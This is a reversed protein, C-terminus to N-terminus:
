WAWTRLGIIGHAGLWLTGGFALVSIATPVLRVLVHPRDPAVAARLAVALGRSAALAFAVTAVCVGLTFPHVVGLLDRKAAAVLLFMAASLCLSAVAPWLVLAAGRLTRKRLRRLVLWGLAWFPALDLGLKMVILLWLRLRAVSRSGAEAYAFGAVMAPQGDADNGFRVSTGSHMPHRWGGDATPVLDVPAGVLPDIRLTRDGIPVATWGVLARELFGFLEHRPSAYAFYGTPRDPADGAPPAPPDPLVRGRVLFAFLLQRIEVYARASHTANLLMVYGVGQSPFYRYCSLFGPLGGDHGRGPVAHGVDGYNGLGYSADTPEIVSTTTREIRALAAAPVIAPYGEGRRLWFHVLHALDTASALLAGAPRHAIPAFAAPTEPGRYGTALRAQLSATRRFDARNMGLPVLVERHLWADFPEGTAREIALGAVTYGVNSYSMRSGPRWRVRRSRPNLALADSPTAADDPSFWENFHMDDFGATHELAHAITIPAEARWPNSLALEPLTEHLPAQLDIRQQAALRAVGLGVISKTISAVRFVTDATVPTGKEVDAVGVGGAWQVGDRDVLALGVGPVGERRLVEGIHAQLEEISAPASRPGPESPLETPLTDEALVPAPADLRPAGIVAVLGLVGVLWLVSSWKTM